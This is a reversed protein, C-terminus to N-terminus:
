IVVELELPPMEVPGHAPIEGDSVEYYDHMSFFFM